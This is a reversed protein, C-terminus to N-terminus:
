PILYLAVGLFYDLLHFLQCVDLKTIHLRVNGAPGWNCFRAKKLRTAQETRLCYDVTYDRLQPRKVQLCLIIMLIKDTPILVFNIVVYKKSKFYIKQKNKTKKNNSLSANNKIQEYIKFM